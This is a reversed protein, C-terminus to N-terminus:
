KIKKVNRGPLSEYSSNQPNKMKRIRVFVKTM